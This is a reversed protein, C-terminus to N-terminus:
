NRHKSVYLCFFYLFYTQGFIVIKGFAYQQWSAFPLKVNREHINFIKEPSTLNKNLVASTEGKLDIVSITHKAIAIVTCYYLTRERLNNRKKHVFSNFRNKNDITVDLFNVGYLTNIETLSVFCILFKNQIESFKVM